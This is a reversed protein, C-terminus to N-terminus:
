KELGLQKAAQKAWEVTSPKSFKKSFFEELWSLLLERREDIIFHTTGPLICLQSNPISQFIKVTHELRIADRDGSMIMVPASIKNLNEFDIHPHEVM